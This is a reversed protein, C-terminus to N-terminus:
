TKTLLGFGFKLLIENMNQPITEEFCVFLERDEHCRGIVWYGLPAANNGSKHRGHGDHILVGVEQETKLQPRLVAIKEQIKRILPARHHDASCRPLLVVGNEVFCAYFELAANKTTLEVLENYVNQFQEGVNVPAIFSATTSGSQLSYADFNDGRHHHHRFPNRAFLGKRSSNAALNRGDDAILFEPTEYWQRLKDNKALVKAVQRCRRIMMTDIQPPDVTVRREIPTFTELLAVVTVGAGDGADYKVVCVCYSANEPQEYGVIQTANHHLRNPPHCDHCFTENAQLMLAAELASLLRQDQRTAHSGVLLGRYFVASGVVFYKRRPYIQGQSGGHNILADFEIADIEALASDIDASVYIPVTHSYDRLAHKWQITGPTSFDSYPRPQPQPGGLQPRRESREQRIQEANLQDIFDNVVKLTRHRSIVLELDVASYLFELLSVIQICM